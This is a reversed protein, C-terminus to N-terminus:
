KVSITVTNGAQGNVSISLAVQDGPTVGSPIQINAQALGVWGPALGLFQVPATSGGISAANPLTAPSHPNVPAAQGTPVAPTVPGQGTLFVVVVRGRAEANGPGNVSGDQNLVAGRNSGFIRSFFIGVASSAVNFTESQSDGASTTVVATATGPAAEFPLQANIQTPSVYFLPIPTGNVKVTTGALQTALPVAPAYATSAALNVGFISIISGPAVPAPALAFSAGNVVGGSLIAPGVLAALVTQLQQTTFTQGTDLKAPVKPQAPLKYVIYDFGTAAHCANCFAVATNFDTNFATLNQNVIDLALPRLAGQEMGKLAQARAPRTTEGVEQIEVMEKLQYAAMGWNGAQAAYYINGFRKSYEAMVTGLGPQINALTDFKQDVTGTLWSTNQALLLAAGVVLIGGTTAIIWKKQM